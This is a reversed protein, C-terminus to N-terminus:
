DINRYFIRVEHKKMTIDINNNSDTTLIEGSFIDELKEQSPMSLLKHGYSFSSYAVLSANAYSADGCQAYCHVSADTFIKRWLKAPTNVGGIFVSKWGDFQKQAMGPSGDFWYAIAQTSNDDVSLLEEYDKAVGFRIDEKPYIYDTREPDLWLSNQLKRGCEKMDMNILKTSNVASKTRQGCSDDYILGASGLFVLTRNDCKLMDIKHIIDDTIRYQNMFIIVKYKKWSENHFLSNFELIDFPAGAPYIEAYSSLLSSKLFEPNPRVSSISREDLVVAVETVSSRDLEQTKLGLKHIQGILEQRKTDKFWHNGISFWWMHQGHTTHEAFNRRFFMEDHWNDRCDYRSFLNSLAPAHDDEVFALKNHIQMSDAFVGMAQSYTLHNIDARYRYQLPSCFFDIEDCNILRHLAIHGCQSLNYIPALEFSYGYFCGVLKNKDKYYSKIVKAFNIIIEAIRKNIFISFEEVRKDTEDINDLFLNKKDFIEHPTPVPNYSCDIGKEQLYEFFRHQMPASLDCCSNPSDSHLFWENTSLACPLYGFIREHYDQERIHEITAKLCDIAHTDWFKDGPSVAYPEGYNPNKTCWKEERKIEVPESPGWYNKYRVKNTFEGDVKNKDIYWDPFFSAAQIRVVVAAKPQGEPTNNDYQELINRIRLDMDEFDYNNPELWNVFVPVWCLNIGNKAIGPIEGNVIELSLKTDKKENVKFHNFSQLEDNIFLSMAGNYRKIAVELEKSM